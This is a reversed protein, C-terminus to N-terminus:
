SPVISEVADVLEKGGVEMVGEGRGCRGDSGVGGCERDWSGHEITHVGRM